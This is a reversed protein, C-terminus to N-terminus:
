RLSYTLMTSDMGKNGSTTFSTQSFGLSGPDGLIPTGTTIAKYFVITSSQQIFAMAGVLDSGDEVCCQVFPQQTLPQCVSPLGTVTLTNSNSTGIVNSQNAMSLICTNGVIDYGFLGTTVTSVGTVTGIWTGIIFRPINGPNWNIGGDDNSSDDAVFYIPAGPIGQSGIAGTAGPKGDEGPLGDEALM